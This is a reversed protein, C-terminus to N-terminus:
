SNSDVDLKQEHMYKIKKLFDYGGGGWNCKKEGKQSVYKKRKMNDKM